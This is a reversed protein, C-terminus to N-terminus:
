LIWRCFVHLNSCYTWRKGDSCNCKLTAIHQIALKIFLLTSIKWNYKLPSGFVIYIEKGFINPIITKQYNTTRFSNSASLNNESLNTISIYHPIKIRCHFFLLCMRFSYVEIFLALHAQLSLFYVTSLLNCILASTLHLKNKFALSEAQDAPHCSVHCPLWSAGKM